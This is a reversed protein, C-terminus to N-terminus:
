TLALFERRDTPSPMLPAYRSVAGLAPGSAYSYISAGLSSAIAQGTPSTIPTARRKTRAM